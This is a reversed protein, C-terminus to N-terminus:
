GAPTVLHAFVVFNDPSRDVGEHLFCTILVLRGPVISWVDKTTTLQSKAYTATADVVYTLPGSGAAVVITTGVPIKSQHSAADTFSNFVAPGKSWSHGVLYVTNTAKASPAGYDSLWYAADHTPPDVVGNKATMGDIPAAIGLADIRLTWGVPQTSVLSQDPTSATGPTASPSASSSQSPSAPHAAPSSVSAVRDQPSSMALVGIVVIAGVAAAAVAIQVKRTRLLGSWRPSRPARPERGGIVSGLDDPSTM